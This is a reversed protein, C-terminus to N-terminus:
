EEVEWFTGYPGCERYAEEAKTVSKGEYVTWGAMKVIYKMDIRDQKSLPRLGKFPKTTRRNACIM